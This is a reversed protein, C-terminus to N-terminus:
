KAGEKKGAKKGLNLIASLHDILKRAHAEGPVPPIQMLVGLGESAEHFDEPSRTGVAACNLFPNRTVMTKICELGDAGEVREDVVVLDLPGAESEALANGCTDAWKVAFGAAELAASLATFAPRNSGVLLAQM